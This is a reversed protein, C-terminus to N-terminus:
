KAAPIDALYAVTVTGAEDVEELREKLKKDLVFGATKAILTIDGGPEIRFAPRVSEELELLIALVGSAVILEDDWGLQFGGLRDGGKYTWTKELKKLFRPAIQMRSRAPIYAALRHALRQLNEVDSASTLAQFELAISVAQLRLRMVEDDEAALIRERADAAEMFIKFRQRGLFGDSTDRSDFLWELDARERLGGLTPASRAAGLEDRMALVNKVQRPRVKNRAPVKLAEAATRMARASQLDDTDLYDSAADFYLDEAPELKKERARIDALRRNLDAVPLFEAPTQMARLDNTSIALALSGAAKPDGREARLVGILTDYRQAVLTDGSMVAGLSRKALKYALGDFRQTQPPDHDLYLLLLESVIEFHPSELGAVYSNKAEYRRPHPAIMEAQELIAIMKEIPLEPNARVLACLLAAISHQRVEGARWWTAASASEPMEAVRRLETVPAAAWEAPLDRLPVAAKKGMAHADIWWILADIALPEADRWAREIVYLYADAALDPFHDMHLKRAMATIERLKALREASSLADFDVSLELQLLGQRPESARQDAAIAEAYATRARAFDGMDVAAGAIATRYETAEEPNLDILNTTTAIFDQYKRLQWQALALNELVDVSKYPTSAERYAEVASELRKTRTAEDSEADAAQHLVYGKAFALYPKCDIQAEQICVIEAELLAELARRVEGTGAHTEASRVLAQLRPSQGMASAACLLLCVIASPRMM